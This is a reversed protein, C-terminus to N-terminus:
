ARLALRSYFENTIASRVADRAAQAIEAHVPSINLKDLVDFSISLTLGHERALRIVEDDGLMPMIDDLKPRKREDTM